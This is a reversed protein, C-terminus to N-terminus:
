KVIEFITEVDELEDAVDEILSLDREIIDSQISM